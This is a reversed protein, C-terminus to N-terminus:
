DVRTLNADRLEYHKIRSATIVDAQNFRRLISPPWIRHSEGERITAQNVRTVDFATLRPMRYVAPKLEVSQGNMQVVAHLWGRSSGRHGRGNAESGSGNPEATTTITALPERKQSALLRM